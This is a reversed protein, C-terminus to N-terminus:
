PAPRWEDPAGGSGSVVVGPRFRTGSKRETGLCLQVSWNQFDLTRSVIRPYVLDLGRSIPLNYELGSIKTVVDTLGPTGELWELALLAEISRDECVDQIRTAADDIEAHDTNVDSWATDDEGGLVSSPAIERHQSMEGRDFWDTTVFGTGATPRYDPRQIYRNPSEITCTLRMRVNNYSGNYDKWCATFYEQPTTAPDGEIWTPITLLNERTLMVALRGPVLQWGELTWWSAGADFSVELVAGRSPPKLIPAENEDVVELSVATLMDAPRYPQVPWSGAEEGSLAAMDPKDAYNWPAGDYRGDSNSDWLRCVDAYDKHDVGTTLYRHAYQGEEILQGGEDTPYTQLTPDWAKKLPVTIQYLTRGGAVTPETIAGLTSEAFSATFLNTEAFDLPPAVGDSDPKQRKLDAPWGYGKMMLVTTSKDGKEACGEALDFGVLDCAAAEADWVKLGTADLSLRCSDSYPNGEDDPMAQLEYALANKIWTEDANYHWSLYDIIDGLTWFEAELDGDFTFVPVGQPPANKINTRNEANMNPVGGPNFVTALGTFWGVETAPYKKYMHRGYVVVDRALRAACGVATVMITEDNGGSLTLDVDAVFGTFWAATNDLSRPRISLRDDLHVFERWNWARKKPAGEVKSFDLLFKARMYGPAIKEELTLPVLYPCEKWGDFSGPGDIAAGVLRNCEGRWVVAGEVKRAVERTM